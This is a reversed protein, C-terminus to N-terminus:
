HGNDIPVFGFAVVPAGLTRPDPPFHGAPEFTFEVSARAQERVPLKWHLTEIGPRNFRQVGLDLGNISPRVDVHGNVKLISPSVNVVM